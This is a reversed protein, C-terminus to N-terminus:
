LLGSLSGLPFQDDPSRETLVYLLSDIIIPEGNIDITGWKVTDGVAFICDENELGPFNVEDAVNETSCWHPKHGEIWIYVNTSDAVPNAYLDELQVSLPVEYLGAGQIPLIDVYSFNIQGSNPPGTVITVPTFTLQAISSDLTLQSEGTDDCAGDGNGDTCEISDCDSELPYAAIIVQVSGPEIGSNLTVSAIGNDSNVCTKTTSTENFYSGSPSNNALRYYVLYDDTVLNGNNDKVHSADGVVFINSYASVSLDENVFVRGIKDTKVNIWSKLPSAKVGACWIITEAEITETNTEVLSESINQVVTNCQVQVGLKELSNKAYISLSHSATPLINAGAEFLIIQAAKTDITAFEKTLVKKSLEAIAGAMEVGTPGGGIIVFKMLKEIAKKNKIREAKEFAKLIKGRLFTADEINKLGYSFNKWQEHGFYSLESGTALILFDYFYTNNRTTIQNLQPSIGILEDM